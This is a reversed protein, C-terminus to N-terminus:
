CNSSWSMNNNTFSNNIGKITRIRDEILSNDSTISVNFKWKFDEIENAAKLMEDWKELFNEIQTDRNM